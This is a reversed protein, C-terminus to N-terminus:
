SNESRRAWSRLETSLEEYAADSAVTRTELDMTAGVGVICALLETENGFQRERRTVPVAKGRELAVRCADVMAHADNQLCEAAFERTEDGDAARYVDAAVQLYGAHREQIWKSAEEPTLESWAPEPM